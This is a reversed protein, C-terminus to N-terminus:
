GGLLDRPDFNIIVEKWVDYKASPMSYPACRLVARRASEAAIGFSPNGSSNMVEPRRDVNGDPTFSVKLKVTLDNAGAAGVPPSWCQQIQARLADLESQSMTVGSLGERSGLSAPTDSRNPAGGGSPEVKNLLAAIDNPNFQKEQRAPQPPPTPKSRPRVNPPPPAEAKKEAPEPTTQPKPEDKPAPEPEKPAPEKPAPAPEKPAPEAQRPAPAPEKPAPAVEKPAPAPEKPAPPQPTPQPEPASPAPTADNAAKPKEAPQPKEAPKEAPKTAEVERVEATKEGIRLRTVESIPVLDVPLTDVPPVEFPKAGPFSIVGWLLVALHGATSAILGVRM